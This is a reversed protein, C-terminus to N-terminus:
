VRGFAMSFIWKSQMMELGLEDGFTHEEQLTHNHSSEPILKSILVATSILGNLGMLRPMVPWREATLM